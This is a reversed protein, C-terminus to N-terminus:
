VGVKVKGPRPAPGRPQRVAHFDFCPRVGSQGKLRAAALLPRAPRRRPGPGPAVHRGEEEARGRRGPSGHRRRAHLPRRAGARAGRHPRARSGASEGEALAPAHEVPLSLRASLPELTQVCRLYPSSVLRTVPYGALPAAVADAQRRGKGTSRGSGTTAPGGSGTGRGRTACWSSSRGSRRSSRRRPDRSRGRLLAPPRRGGPAGLPDRRGGREPPVRRRPRDHGLLARGQGPGAPGPLPDDRARSRSPLRVRDGRRGRPPRLGRGARGARGQGEAPDLGSARAPPRAAGRAPPRSRDRLVAGGAARVDPALRGAVHGAAVLEDAVARIARDLGDVVRDVESGRSASRRRCRSSTAWRCRAFSSGTRWAGPRSRSLRGEARRRVAPPERPGGGARRRRDPRPRPHRGVLPHGGLRERLCAQLYAGTRAANGVMDEGLLIDLNAMAAAAGVPHGSYTFGHAFAGVEPSGAQLVSWVRESLVVASLPFYGSTLGKAVTVLDPEIGYVESGFLRGLRGFGCIVEDAIMLVDHKRLVAQVRDFYTRPPVLVGGAGM